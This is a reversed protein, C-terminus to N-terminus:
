SRSRCFSRWPVPLTTTRNEYSEIRESVARHTAWNCATSRSSGKSAPYRTGTGTTSVGSMSGSGRWASAAVGPLFAIGTAYDGPRPLDFPVVARFFADPTQITVGAGDGTDAEAGAAGRHNLCCVATLAQNLIANSKRGLMDVVFGVGCSDHEFRPDYLGQAQPLDPNAPVERRPDRDTM